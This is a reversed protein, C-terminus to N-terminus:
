AHGPGQAPTGDVSWVKQSRAIGSSRRRRRGAPQREDAPRAHRGLRRGSARDVWDNPKPINAEVRASFDHEGISAYMESTLNWALLLVAVAAAAAGRDGAAASAGAHRALAVLATAVLTVVVLANEIRGLPWAWERNALALISLGHAEYYPFNDLGPRDPGLRDDRAGRSRRRSRGLAARGRARASLRDRHDRAAYTCRPEARSHPELVDDLPVRGQDGRVLRLGRRCRRHRRRLRAGRAAGSRRRSPSSPSCRSRPSCASGSRSRAAAWSGYEVMRDKWLTTATQWENSRHGLFAALRVGHRDDPRRRRRPGLEDVDGALPADARHALRAGAPRRRACRSRALQSRTAVAVVCAASRSRWHGAGPPTSRAFSSGSPSPRRGPVRM